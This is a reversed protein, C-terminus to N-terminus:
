PSVFAALAAVLAAPTAFAPVAPKAPRAVMIVPLNKERAAVIKAFTALGGANKSVLHTIGEREMLLQEAAVTFPPRQVVLKWHGPVAVPEIMRMVGSIDPRAFFASVEKRGITVLARAGAPLAAVAEATNAVVRWNAEVAWAERELRLVPVPVAAAHRSMQAAFPHTADIVTAIGEEAVYRRLGDAGGFGGTRLLGAPRVPDATVGALSTVVDYGAAVLLEALAVADGTGGLILIRRPPM